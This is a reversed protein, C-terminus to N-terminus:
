PSRPSLLPFDLTVSYKVNPLSQLPRLAFREAEEEAM